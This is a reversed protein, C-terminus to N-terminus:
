DRTITWIRGLEALPYARRPPDPRYNEESFRYLFDLLRAVLAEVVLRGKERSTLTPEAAKAAFRGRAIDLWLV